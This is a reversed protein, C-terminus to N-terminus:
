NTYYCDETYIYIGTNDEYNENKPYLCDNISTAGTTLTTGGNPCKTCSPATGIVSKYTGKPCPYCNYIEQTKTEMIRRVAYYGPLCTECYKGHGPYASCDCYYWYGNYSVKSCHCGDLTSCAQSCTVMCKGTPIDIYGVSHGYGPCTCTRCEGEDKISYSCIVAMANTSVLLGSLLLISKNM